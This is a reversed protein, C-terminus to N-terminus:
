GRFEKALHRAQRTTMPATGLRTQAALMVVTDGRVIALEAWPATKPTRDSLLTHNGLDTVTSVLQGEAPLSVHGKCAELNSTRAAFFSSGGTPTSFTSKIAIVKIGRYTYDVELAHAPTPMKHPRRCGIPVASSAVEAPDRKLAPTGNGLYGGEASGPDVFYKWGVGLAKPRPFSHVSM